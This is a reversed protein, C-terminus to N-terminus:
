HHARGANHSEADASAYGRLESYRELQADDLLAVQDVHAQLHIGRLQAQLEGIRRLAAAMPERETRHERFMGDLDREAQLLEEGVEIARAKMADFIEQSRLLQADSLALAEANEIVHLPGPYGNLEAAKALGMGKGEQIEAVEQQSLAKIPRTQQGAYPAAANCVGCLAALAACTLARKM